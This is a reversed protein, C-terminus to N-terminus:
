LDQFTKRVSNGNWIKLLLAKLEEAKEPYKDIINGQEGVDESLNYLEYKIKDRNLGDKLVQKGNQKTHMLLKWDGQRIGHSKNAEEIIYSNGKKDKGLLADMANQSDPATNDDLEIGFFNAFSAIFDVHSVLADTTGPNVKGPWRVILPVRTGGEYPQYKGGRYEGSGDHGRDVEETSTRVTTGDQYGDDYVPGNDSSFLVITNEDLGREKLMEMLSGVVWDLEVMADGRHGLETAGRFRPHPMRPVHILQSCFYLFFPQDKKTELHGDLWNNTRELFVESMTEDNWLAKKGGYMLGIRGVGNIVSQNHGHSNKYYWMSDPTERGIPYETSRPDLKKNLSIPDEPDHNVVRHNELYVCPVRDNTNPLLFSYDFGIELPGPKVDANWDVPIGEAGLGLHWKGVVATSYGAEKFLKPLTYEDTKIPLASTPGLVTIGRRSSLHGTLMSFRSASCTAGPCHGDRFNLGEEALKDIHPTPIKISGNVSVDAYGVDDAYIIIVNPKTNESTVSESNNKTSCAGIFVLCLVSVLIKLQMSLNNTKAQNM